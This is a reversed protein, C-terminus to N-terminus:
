VKIVLRLLCREISYFHQPAVKHRSIFDVEKNYFNLSLRPAFFAVIRQSLQRKQM